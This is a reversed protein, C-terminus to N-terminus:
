FQAFIRHTCERVHLDAVPRSYSVLKLDVSPYSCVLMGRRFISNSLKSPGTRLMSALGLNTGRLGISLGEGISKSSASNSAYVKKQLRDIGSNEAIKSDSNQFTVTKCFKWYSAAIRCETTARPVSWSLTLFTKPPGDHRPIGMCLFFKKRWCFHLAMRACFSWTEVFPGFAGSM